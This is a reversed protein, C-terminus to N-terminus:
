RPKRRGDRRAGSPKARAVAETTARRTTKPSREVRTAPEVCRGPTPKATTRSSPKARTRRSPKADVEEESEPAAEPADKLGALMMLAVYDDYELERWAGRPLNRPLTMNGYRVRTLRSVVCGVAEWMRRVERWRGECLTVRYWHNAGEGGADAVTDFKAIGDELQVGAILQKLAEPTARGLVRVAYEREIQRSPHMLRNALEGDTTFLLLGTTNIDLRGVAVWRGRRLSPLAEFVTKRGGEDDRTCIEGIPKHYIIVRRRPAVLHAKQVPKGNVAVRDTENVSCGLVAAKGNVKVRGERIWAEIERRSGLGARALVKQLRESV